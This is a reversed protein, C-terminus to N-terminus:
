KKIFPKTLKISPLKLFYLGPPLHSINIEKNLLLGSHTNRGETNIIQYETLLLDQESKGLLEVKLYGSAPNPEINLFVNVYWENVDTGLPELIDLTTNIEPQHIVSKAGSPWYVELSDVQGEEGLGFSATLSNSIGYSEGSRIERVLIGLQNHYLKLKAGVASRNSLIGELRVKLYDNENAQNLLLKDSKINEAELFYYSAYIDTFGDDNMDGLAFSRLSDLWFLEDMKQFQGDGTNLFLYSSDGSILLDSYGDNDFDRAICQWPNGVNALETGETIDEFYQNDENRLLKSPGKHNTVYCDLDGDNDFDFFESTWSQDGLKLNWEEATEIYEGEGKNEYLVNIRRPDTPDDPAHSSCKTIYLDIDGDDDFDTICTGYNGSNDSSPMTYFDIINNPLLNGSGDNIWIQNLGEDHTGVYDLWGDKDFDGFSCGQTAIPTDTLSFVEFLSDQNLYIHLGDYWGGTLIDNKGDNNLDAITTSLQPRSNARGIIESRFGGMANSFLVKLMGMSDRADRDFSNPYSVVIDDIGDQNIDSVGKTLYSYFNPDPLLDSRDQFDIQAYSSIPLVIGVLILLVEFLDIKLFYSNRKTVNEGLIYFM